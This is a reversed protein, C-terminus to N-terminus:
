GYRNPPAFSRCQYCECHRAAKRRYYLDRRLLGSLKCVVFGIRHFAASPWWRGSSSLTLSRPLRERQSWEPKLRFYCVQQQVFQKLFPFPVSRVFRRRESSERRIHAADGNLWIAFCSFFPVILHILSALFTFFVPSVKNICSGSLPRVHVANLSVLNFLWPPLVSSTNSSLLFRQLVTTGLDLAKCRKQQFFNIKELPITAKQQADLM